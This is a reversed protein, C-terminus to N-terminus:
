STQKWESHLNGREEAKPVFLMGPMGPVKARSAQVAQCAM